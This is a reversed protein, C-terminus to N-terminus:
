SCCAHSSTLHLTGVFVSHSFTSVLLSIPTGPVNYHIHPKSISRLSSTISAVWSTIWHRVRTFAHAKPNWLIYWNRLFFNQFMFNYNYNSSVTHSNIIQDAEGNWRVQLKFSSQNASQSRVTQVTNRSILESTAIASGWQNWCYCLVRLATEETNQCRSCVLVDVLGLRYLHGRVHCCGSM